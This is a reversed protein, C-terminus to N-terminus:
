GVYDTKIIQFPLEERYFLEKVRAWIRVTLMITKVDRGTIVNEEVKDKSSPDSNM